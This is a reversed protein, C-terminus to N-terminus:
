GLQTRAFFPSESIEKPVIIIAGNCIKRVYTVLTFDKNLCYYYSGNSGGLEKQPEGSKLNNIM